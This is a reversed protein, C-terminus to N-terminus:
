LYVQLLLLWKILNLLNICFDSAVKICEMHVISKLIYTESDLSNILLHGLFVKSVAFDDTDHNKWDIEETKLYELILGNKSRSIWWM